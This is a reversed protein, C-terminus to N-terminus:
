RDDFVSLSGSYNAVWVRNDKSDYTVGVPRHGTPVVQVVTMTTTAIKTLTDDAYHVVWLSRGDDSMVMSRPQNGTRVVTLATGTAVDLSRVTGARNNTVYLVRDDPSLVLHRPTPGAAISNTTWTSLDIRVISGSGMVAVYATASDSTVAIGRPHLGVAIRRVETGSTADVISVDQSCFNSVILWRGNPTAVLFKPVAGVKIAGTIQLTAVDVQYVFGPDWDRGQCEDDAVPRWGEGYMKYNSVWATRGDASFAVEVPAGRVITARGPEAVGFAGLDVRDDITGILAFDRGYVAVSHRYMMNQAFFVGDGSHVVSKPQLGDDIITTALTL